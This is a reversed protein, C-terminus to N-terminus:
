PISGPPAKHSAPPVSRSLPAAQTTQGGGSNPTEQMEPLVRGGLWEGKRQALAEPQKQRAGDSAEFQELLLFLLPVPLRGLKVTLASSGTVGHTPGRGESQWGQAGRM